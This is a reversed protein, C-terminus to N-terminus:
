FKKDNKGNWKTEQGWSRKTSRQLHSCALHLESLSDPEETVKRGYVEILVYIDEQVSQDWVTFISVDSM